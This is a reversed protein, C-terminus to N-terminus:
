LQPLPGWTMPILLKTDTFGRGIGPCAQTNFLITHFRFKRFGWICIPNFTCIGWYWFKHIQPNHLLNHSHQTKCATALPAIRMRGSRKSFVYLMHSSFMRSQHILRCSHHPCRMGTQHAGEGSEGSIGLLCSLHSDGVPYQPRQQVHILSPMFATTPAHPAVQM